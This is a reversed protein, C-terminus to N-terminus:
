TSRAVCIKKNQNFSTALHSRLNVFFFSFSFLLFLSLLL